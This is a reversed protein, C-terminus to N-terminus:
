KPYRSPADLHSVLARVDIKDVPVGAELSMAGAAGAAHGLQIMTRQLRCSSAAIKSFGAGRCAVLLNEWAGKPILCRYPIGYPGSVSALHGGAGHIDCPHDAIAIIDEHPQGALGAVLDHESLVYQTVVRYSERIGLMPAARDFEYGEFDPTGQLWRWHALVARDTLEMCAEYGYDILARGPLMPLPNVVRRGRPWGTVHARKPFYPIPAELAPQRRPHDSPRIMYCRSIANLQLKAELPASPENFRDRPDVGLMMDCGVARCLHVCGTCDIFVGARIRSVHGVEDEVLISEVRNRGANVDAHFFTTEDLVTVKGTEDLLQRAVRDFAAPDYPVCRMRDKPVGARRLSQEYTADPAIYWQGMPFSTSVNPHHKAVGTAGPVLLMRDFIERAISCGPGPEWCSVLANVGTGGLATQREVLIVRAGRRAAALAAGIGSSGAGVVCIDSSLEVDAPKAEDHWPYVDATLESPTLHYRLGYKKCLWTGVQERESQGLARDYVLIEAIEGNWSLLRDSLPLAGIWHMDGVIPAALAGRGEQGAHAGFTVEARSESSETQSLVGAYVGWRRFYPQGIAQVTRHQKDRVIFRTRGASDTDLQVLPVAEQRISFIGVGSPAGARAVALITLQQTAESLIRSPISLLQRGRFSMAPRGGLQECRAIFDPGAYEAPVSADHGNTSQDAWTVVVGAAVEVGRGADFHLRLGNQPVADDARLTPLAVLPWLAILVFSLPPFRHM